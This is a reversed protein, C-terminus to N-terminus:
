PQLTFKGTTVVVRQGGITVSVVEQGELPKGQSLGARAAAGPTITVSVTRGAPITLTKEGVTTPLAAATAGSGAGGAGAIMIV